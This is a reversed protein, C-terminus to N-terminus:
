ASNPKKTPASGTIQYTYISLALFELWRATGAAAGILWLRRYDPVAFLAYMSAFPSAM